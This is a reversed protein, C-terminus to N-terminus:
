ASAVSAIRLSDDISHCIRDRCAISPRSSKKIIGCADLMFDAVDRWRYLL